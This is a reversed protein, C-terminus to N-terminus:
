EKIVDCDVPLHWYRRSVCRWGAVRIGNSPDLRVQVAGMEGSVLWESGQRDLRRRVARAPFNWRNGYGAAILTWQPAVASLFASSSAGASGHHGAVLVDARVDTGQDLLTREGRRELDGMVLMRGGPAIIRLVCSGGNDSGRYGAHPHLIEFMVGDWRWAEGSRCPRTGPFPRAGGGLWERVAMVQRLRAAGGGHDIDDHSVIVRDVREIGERRLYPEIVWEVADTDGMRPGTDYLLVHRATRLVLAQGQGVDLLTADLVGPEIPKGPRTLALVILVAGMTRGPMGRPALLWATGALMTGVGIWDPMPLSSAAVPWGALGAWPMWLISLTTAAAALLPAALTPCLAGLLTGALILPLLLVSFVPILILNAAPAVWSLRGFALLLLPALGLTVLWQARVLASLGRWRGLRGGFGAYLCGVAGFSLWTGPALAARPDITLVLALTALLLGAGSRERRWWLAAVFAAMMLLARQVPVSFGALLGYASAAGLLAIASARPAALRLAAAPLRPWLWRTLAYVPASAMLIHQGSVVAIHSTGTDRFVQWQEPTVAGQDGLALARILGAHPHDALIRELKQALHGRLRAVGWPAPQLRRNASDERVYGTAVINQRFLWTEYDFVGPNRLGRAARLRLKLHWIEGPRYLRGQGYDSIRLRAGSVVVAPVADSSVVEARLRQHLGRSQPFDVIRVVLSTTVGRPPLEPRQAVLAAGSVAAWWVGAMAAAMPLMWRIRTAVAVVLVGLPIVGFALCQRFGPLAPSLQLLLVGAVYAALLAGRM